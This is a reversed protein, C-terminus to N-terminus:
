TWSTFMWRHGEPDEATYLRGFPQDEPERVIRAGGERARAVRVIEILRRIAAPDAVSTGGFKQVVM